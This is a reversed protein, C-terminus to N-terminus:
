AIEGKEIGNKILTGWALGPPVLYALCDGHSSLTTIANRNIYSGITQTFLWEGWAPKCIYEGHTNIHAALLPGVLPKRASDEYPFTVGPRTLLILNPTNVIVTCHIYKPDQNLVRTMRRAPADMSMGALPYSYNWDRIFIDGKRKVLSAWVSTVNAPTGILSIYYISPRDGINQNWGFEKGERWAAGSVWCKGEKAEIVSLSFAM